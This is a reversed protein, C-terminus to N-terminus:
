QRWKNRSSCASRESRGPKRTLRSAKFWSPEGSFFRSLCPFKLLSGRLETTPPVVTVIARDVDGFAVSVVLVPRTKATMGLDFIWVEGRTPQM